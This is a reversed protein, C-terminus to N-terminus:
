IKQLKTLKILENIKWEKVVKAPKISDIEWLSKELPNQDTYAVVYLINAYPYESSSMPISGQGFELLYRLSQARSEGDVISAVEYKDTTDSSIISAIEKLTLLNTGRPMGSPFEANLNWRPLSLILYILFLALLTKNSSIKSLLWALLISGPVFFYLFYYSELALSTKQSRLTEMLFTTMTSINYFDHRFDFLIAPLNGLILGILVFFLLYIKKNRFLTYSFIPLMILIALSYSLHIGFGLGLSFGMLLIWIPRFSKLSEIFFWISAVTIPVLLYVHWITKSIGVMLPSIMFLALAIVATRSNFYKRVVFYLGIGGAINAVTFFITSTLPDFGFLRQIFALPYLYYASNFFSHSASTQRIFYEVGLLSIRGTQVMRGSSGLALAQEYSFSLLDPLRYFRIFVGLIIITLVLLKHKM